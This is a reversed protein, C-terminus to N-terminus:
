TVRFPYCTTFLRPCQEAVTAQMLANGRVCWVLHCLACKLPLHVLMPTRSESTELCLIFYTTSGLIAWTVAPLILWDACYHWMMGDSHWAEFLTMLYWCIYWCITFYYCYRVLYWWHCLSHEWFLIYWIGTWVCWRRVFSSLLSHLCGGDCFLYSHHDFPWEGAWVDVYCYHLLSYLDRMSICASHWLFLHLLISHMMLFIWFLIYRDFYMPIFPFLRMFLVCCVSFWCLSPMVSLRWGGIGLFPVSSLVSLWWYELFPLRGTFLRASFPSSCAPFLVLICSPASPSHCWCAPWCPVVAAEMVWWLMVLCVRRLIILVICCVELASKYWFFVTDSFSPNCYCLWWTLILWLIGSANTTTINWGRQVCIITETQQIRKHTGCGRFLLTTYYDLKFLITTVSHLYSWQYKMSQRNEYSWYLVIFQKLDAAFAEKEVPQRRASCGAAAAALRWGCQPGIPQISLM